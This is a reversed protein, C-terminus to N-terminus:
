CVALLYIHLSRKSAKKIESLAFTFCHPSMTINSYSYPRNNNGYLATLRPQPHTKGFLTIDDQQWPTEKQLTKFYSDALTSTFFDPYYVVDAGPLDLRISTKPFLTM